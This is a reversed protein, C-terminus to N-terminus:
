WLGPILVARHLSTFAAGFRDVYWRHTMRAQDTLNWAVFLLMALTLWHPASAAYACYLLIEFAYHPSTVRAFLVGTPITYKKLSALTYHARFQAINLLLCFTLKIINPTLPLPQSKAAYALTLPTMLYFLLGACLNVFHMRRDSFKTVFFSELLRRGSHFLLLFNPLRPPFSIVFSAFFMACSFSYFLIWGFKTSVSPCPWVRTELKGYRTFQDWLTSVSKMAYVAIATAWLVGLLVGLDPIPFPYM